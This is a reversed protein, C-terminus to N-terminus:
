AAGNTDDLLLEEFNFHDVEEVQLANWAAM